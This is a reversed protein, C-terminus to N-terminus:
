ETTGNIDGIINNLKNIAERHLQYVRDVSYDLRRAVQEWSPRDANLYYEYLVMRHSSSDLMGIYKVANNYRNVLAELKTKMSIEIEDIRAEIKLMQDDPSTQVNPKDYRIAGPLLSM